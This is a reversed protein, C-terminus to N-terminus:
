FFISPSKFVYRAVSILWFLASACPLNYTDFEVFSCTSLLPFRARDLPELKKKYCLVFHGEYVLTFRCLLDFSRFLFQLHVFGM